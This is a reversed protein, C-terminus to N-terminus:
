LSELYFLIFSVRMSCGFCLSGLEAIQMNAQKIKIAEPARFAWDPRPEVATAGVGGM